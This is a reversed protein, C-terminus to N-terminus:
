MRRVPTRPSLGQQYAKLVDRVQEASEDSFLFVYGSLANLGPANGRDAMYIPVSNYIVNRHQFERFVPFDAGTRDTLVAQGDRCTPCGDSIEGILCKETVMLPVRGYVIARVPLSGGGIDRMQPLTLEPSLIGDAFGLTRLAEATDSNSLNLRFDGHLLFGQALPIHGPNGVLAHVAGAARAANLLREARPRESDWVVPPLVVGNVSLRAADAPSLEAFASAPLYIEEFFAGANEPIQSPTRFVAVRPKPSEASPPAPTPSPSPSPAFSPLLPLPADAAAADPALIAQTLADLADRRLRNLAAVPVMLGEELSLSLDTIAFPTGGFRSLSKTVAERTLPCTRAAVPVDGCVSVSVARARRRAEQETFSLTLTMPQGACLVALASLGVKRLPRERDAVTRSRAKDAESRVGLMDPPVAKPSSSVSGTFYRDTLGGRSFIDSLQQLEESTASRREDLLRRYIATVGGVYEPPKMRGEIKLSAVGSSLIEPIHCALCLDKLSLPYGVKGGKVRYPLRCPQACLGRNGSRGGVLSSFLCQGSHCVCLAGHIFMEAEIGAEKTLTRIDNLPMERACVMRSFGLSALSRGIAANHGSLQTSAHLALGPVYRRLLSAAGLDGVIAADVGSRYAFVAASLFRERERDYIQTNLTVYAKVGYLHCRKVAEAFSEATFNDANIRANFDPMGFYVADAGAQLAAELAQPSGAPSLLEPLPREPEPRAEAKPARLPAQQTTKYSPERAVAPSHSAAPSLVPSPEAKTACSLSLSLAGKEGSRTREGKKASAASSAM